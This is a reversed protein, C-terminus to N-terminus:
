VFIFNGRFIELVFVFIGPRVIYHLVYEKVGLSVDNLYGRQGSQVRRPPFLGWILRLGFRRRLTILLLRATLRVGLLVHDANYGSSDTSTINPRCRTRRAAWVTVLVTVIALRLLRLEDLVDPSM